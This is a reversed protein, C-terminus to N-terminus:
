IYNKNSQLQREYAQLHTPAPPDGDYDRGVGVTADAPVSVISIELPTWQRAIFCPGAFGDSSTAGAKVQEYSGVSYRVSVGRLTGNKVKQCIREAEDDDDFEVEAYGRKDGTWARKIKGCVRDVDHNFLLVGIDNLRTMDVAGDAHSLIETADYWRQYPDESSFSLTFTRENGDGEVARIASGSMFRTGLQKERDKPM